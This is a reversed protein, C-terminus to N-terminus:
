VSAAADQLSKWTFSFVCPGPRYDLTYIWFGQSDVIPKGAGLACACFHMFDDFAVLTAPERVCNLARGRLALHIERERV